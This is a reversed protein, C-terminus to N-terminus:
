FYFIAGIGSGSLSVYTWNYTGGANDKPSSQKQYGLAIQGYVSFNKALFAQGGFVASLGIETNPDDAGYDSTSSYSLIGGLFPSVDRGKSLYYHFIGQFTLGSASSESTNGNLEYGQSKSIYGLGVGIEMNDALAYFGQATETSGGFFAGIGFSGANLQANSSLTLGIFMAIAAVFFKTGRKM